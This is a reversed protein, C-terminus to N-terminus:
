RGIWDLPDFGGAGSAQPPEPDGKRKGVAPAGLIGGLGGGGGTLEIGFRLIGVNKGKNQIGPAVRNDPQGM